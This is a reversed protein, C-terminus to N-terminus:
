RSLIINILANVDAVDVEGDENVDCVQLHEGSLVMDILRNVDALTIEKDGNIDGKVTQLAAYVLEMGPIKVSYSEGTTVPDHTIYYYIFHLPFNGLDGPDCISSVPVDVYVEGGASNDIAQEITIRKAHATEVLLKLSKLQIGDAEIRMRLTDPLGWIQVSKSLKIYPNRSSAGTFDIQLGNDLATIVKNKGGSQAVSWTEPDIPANEINTVAAKPNEVRVLLSDGLMPNDSGVYTRGDLGASIVAKKDVVCVAEDDSYWDVVTADVNDVGYNSVGNIRIAYSHYKDIVVSDCEFKWRADIISVPQTATIGNYTVYLNGTAANSIAKFVGNEDFSGVEPDCSFTCGKLDRSKLLGYQNYAWIHFTTSASAPLNYRRPEYSIIGIEDDVPANSVFLCGNGVARVPGDSPHNIVEDNVMMCSSGGGDLNVATSAGLGRFIDAMDRLTAGASPTQRGDVVIFYVRTSDASFGIATRPHREDWAEAPDYEGNRMFMHNSGGVLQKIAIDGPNHNLTQKFSITLEDGEHMSDAYSGYSGKLWLVAQGEPIPTSHHANIIKEIICHETGPTHWKFPEDAPRLILMKGTVSGTYTTASYAPTFLITQNTAIDETQFRLRNVLNLPVTTEGCTITGTFTLRDVYPHNNEDLIFCARNHSSVQLEGNSVQGSTPIGSERYSIINFFDGNIAGVVDHGPRDNRAAMSLPTETGVAHGGGLCPEVMAYPNTLDMELVSVLLPIEPVQYKASIMGPGVMHPFIVTDVDYAKDRIIWQNLASATVTGLLLAALAAILQRTRM